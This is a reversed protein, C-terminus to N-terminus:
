SKEMKSSRAVSMVIGMQVLLMVLSTGGASFFPLSIGTNPVLKTVVAINLAAQIGVQAVFGIVLLTGLKDPAKLAIVFGRWVLLAFLIIIILAGIFGLEECVVAFVFDNQPESIYLYKQRSNGLGVGFVGGSGIAYLAQINQWGDGLRDKWPDIWVEFRTMAYIIKGSIVMYGIGALAAGGVAAFYRLKMGGVFLMIAGILLILVTGSIHPELMMLVCVSGLILAYPLVGYKFTGMKKFNLSIFHAFAIVVAFKAVESPQFTTFGLDIWRKVGKVEPMFLVVILTAYTVGLVPLVFKRWHHYDFYSVAIMAAVGIAAFLLQRKIYFYSDGKENYYAFAYSASFMMILGVALIVMVLIFFSIDTGGRSSFLKRKIKNKPTTNSEANNM